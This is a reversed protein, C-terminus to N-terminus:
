QSHSTHSRVDSDVTCQGTRGVITGLTLLSSVAECVKRKNVRQDSRAHRDGKVACANNLQDYGMMIMHTANSGM